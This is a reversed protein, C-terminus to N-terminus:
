VRQNLVCQTNDMTQNSLSPLHILLFPFVLKTQPIKRRKRRPRRPLWVTLSLRFKSSFNRSLHVQPVADIEDMDEMKPSRTTEASGLSRALLRSSFILHSRTSLSSLKLPCLDFHLIGKKYPHFIIWGLALVVATIRRRKCKSHQTLSLLLEWFIVRPSVTTFVINKTVLLFPSFLVWLRLM